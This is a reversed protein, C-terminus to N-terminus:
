GGLLGPFVTTVVLTTTLVTLVTALTVAIINYALGNCHRGLLRRDNALLIIFVLLVPLLIGDLTQTGIAVGAIPVGPILM